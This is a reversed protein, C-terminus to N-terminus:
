RKTMLKKIEKKNIVEVNPLYKEYFENMTIGLYKYLNDQNVEYTKGLKALYVSLKCTHSGILKPLYSFYDKSKWIGMSQGNSCDVVFDKYVLVWHIRINNDPSQPNPKGEDHAFCMVKVEEKVGSQAVLWAFSTTAELCNGIAQGAKEYDEKLEESHEVVPPKFEDFLKFLRKTPEDYEMIEAWYSDLAQAGGMYEGYEEPDNDEIEDEDSEEEDMIKDFVEVEDGGFRGLYDRVRDFKNEFTEKLKELEKKTEDLEKQEPYPEANTKFLNAINEKHGEIEEKLEELKEDKEEVEYEILAKPYSM